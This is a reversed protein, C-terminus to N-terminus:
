AKAQDKVQCQRTTRMQAAQEAHRRSDARGGSSGRRTGRVSCRLRSRHGRHDTYRPVPDSALAVVACAPHDQETGAPTRCTTSTAPPHATRASRHPATRQHDPATAPPSSRPPRADGPVAGHIGREVLAPHVRLPDAPRRSGQRQGPGGVPSKHERDIHTRPQARVRSGTRIPQEAMDMAAPHTLGQRTRFGAAGPSRTRTSPWLTCTRCSPGSSAGATIRTCPKAQEICQNSRTAASSAASCRTIRTSRSPWPQVLAAVSSSAAACARAM